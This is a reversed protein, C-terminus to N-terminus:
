GFRVASAASSLKSENNENEEQPRKLVNISIPVKKKQFFGASSAAATSSASKVYEWHSGNTHNLHFSPVSQNHTICIRNIIGKDSIGQMRKTINEEDPLNNSGNSVFYYQTNDFKIISRIKLTSLESESFNSSDFQRNGNRMANQVQLLLRKTLDEDLASLRARLTEKELNYFIRFKGSQPEGVSLSALLEQEKQTLDSVFGGGIGLVQIGGNIINIGFLEAIAGIEIDGCFRARDGGHAAPSSLATFYIDKGEIDWWARLLEIRDEPAETCLTRFFNEISPHPIFIDDLAYMNDRQQNELFVNFTACLAAEFSERYLLSYNEKIYIIALSRLYPSLVLQRENSNLNRLWAIFTPLDAHDILNDALLANLLKTLGLNGEPELISLDILDCIGQSVGNFVCDGNGLTLFDEEGDNQLFVEEEQEVKAMVLAYITEFLKRSASHLSSYNQHFNTEIESLLNIAIDLYIAASTNDTGENEIGALYFYEACSSYANAMFNEYLPHKEIDKISLFLQFIKPYYKRISPWEKEYAYSKCIDFLATAMLFRNEVKNKESDSLEFMLKKLVIREALYFGWQHMMEIDQFRKQRTQSENPCSTLIGGTRNQLVKSDINIAELMRLFESFLHQYESYVTLYSKFLHCSQEAAHSAQIFDGAAMSYFAQRYLYYAQALSASQDDEAMGIFNNKRGLWLHLLNWRKYQYLLQVYIGDCIIKEAMNTLKNLNNCHESEHALQLLIMFSLKISYNEWRLKTSNEIACPLVLLDNDISSERENKQMALSISNKASQLYAQVNKEDNALSAKCANFFHRTAYVRHFPTDVDNKHFSAIVRDLAEIAIDLYESSETVAQMSLCLRSLVYCGFAYIINKERYIELTQISGDLETLIERAHKLAIIWRDKFCAIYFENFLKITSQSYM